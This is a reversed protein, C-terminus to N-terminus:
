HLNNRPRRRGFVQLSVKGKLSILGISTSHQFVSVAVVICGHQAYIRIGQVYGIYGFRRIMGPCTGEHAVM